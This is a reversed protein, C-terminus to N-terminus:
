LFRRAGNSPKAGVSAGRPRAGDQDGQRGSPPGHASRAARGVRALPLAAEGIPLAGLDEPEDVPSREAVDGHVQPHAVLGDAPHDEAAGVLDGSCPFATPAITWGGGM